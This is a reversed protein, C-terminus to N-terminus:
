SPLKGATVMRNILISPSIWGVLDDYETTFEHSVFSVNNDSNEAEDSNSSVTLQNGSSGFAGAGNM